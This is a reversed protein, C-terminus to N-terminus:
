RPRGLTKTSPGCKSSMSRPPRSVQPTPAFRPARSLILNFPPQSAARQTEEAQGEPRGLGFRDSEPPQLGDNEAKVRRQLAARGRPQRSVARNLLRARGSRAIRLCARRNGASAPRPVLRGRGWENRKAFGKVASHASSECLDRLFAFDFNPCQRAALSTSFQM